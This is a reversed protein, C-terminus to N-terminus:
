KMIGMRQLKDKLDGKPSGVFIRMGEKQTFERIVRGTIQSARGTIVKLDRTLPDLRATVPKLDETMKRANEAVVEVDDVIRDIQRADVSDLLRDTKNLVSEVRDLLAPTRSNLTHTLNETRGIIRDIRPDELLGRGTELIAHLDKRNEDLIVTGTATLQELNDLITNIKKGLDKVNKRLEEEDDTELTGALRNLRKTLEVVEPYLAEESYVVGRALDFLNSVDVSKEGEPLASGPELVVAQKDVHQKINVFKEGLLSVPQIAITADSYIPTNQRIELQLRARTGDETLGVDAVRGIEVGASKVANGRVIGAANNIDVTYRDVADGTFAGIEFAVAVLLGISVVVFLGLSFLKKDM